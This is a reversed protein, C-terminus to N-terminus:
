LALHSAKTRLSVNEMGSIRPEQSAVLKTGVLNGCTITTITDASNSPVNAILGKKQGAPHVATSWRAPSSLPSPSKTVRSWTTLRNTVNNQSTILSANRPTTAISTNIRSVMVSKMPTRLALPPSDIRTMIPTLPPVIITLGRKYRKPTNTAVLSWRPNTQSKHM